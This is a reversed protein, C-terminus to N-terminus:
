SGGVASVITIGDITCESLFDDCQAMALDVGSLGEAMLDEDSNGVEAAQSFRPQKAEQTRRLRRGQVVTKGLNVAAVAFADFANGMLDDLFTEEFTEMDAMSAFIGQVAMKEPPVMVRNLHLVYHVVQPTLCPTGAQTIQGTRKEGQSLDKVGSHEGTEMLVERERDSLLDFWCNGATSSAKWMSTAEKENSHFDWPTQRQVVRKPDEKPEADAKEKKSSNQKRLEKDRKADLCYDYWRSLEPSPEKLLFSELPLRMENNDTDVYFSKVISVVEQLETLTLELSALIFIRQRREPIGIENPSLMFSVAVYGHRKLDHLCHQLNSLGTAQM